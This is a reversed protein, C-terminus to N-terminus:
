FSAAEETNIEVRRETIVMGMNAPIKFLPYSFPTCKFRELACGRIIKMVKDAKETGDLSSLNYFNRRQVM